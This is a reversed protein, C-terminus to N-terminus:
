TSAWLIDGEAFFHCITAEGPKVKLLKFALHEPNFKSTDEHCAAIATAKSGNSSFLPVEFMKTSKISHCSYVPYVYPLIHCSVSTEGAIRKVTPGVTYQQGATEEMDLNTSIPRAHEGLKSKAFDVMAELSTACIKDEGELSPHECWGITQKMTEVEPSEPKIHLMDIIEHIKDPSFPIAEAYQRPLFNAKPMNSTLYINMKRGPHLEKELFFYDINDESDAESASRWYFLPTGSSPHVGAKVVKGKYGAHVNLRYKLLYM